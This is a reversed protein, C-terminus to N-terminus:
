GAVAQRRRAELLLAVGVLLFLAVPAPAPEGTASLACGGGGGGGRKATTPAVTSASATTGTTVRAHAPGVGGGTGIGPLEFTTAIKNLPNGFADRPADWFYVAFTVADPKSGYRDLDLPIAVTNTVEYRGDKITVNDSWGTGGGVPVLTDIATTAQDTSQGTKDLAKLEVAYAHPELSMDFDFRVKLAGPPISGHGQADTVTTEVDVKVDYPVCWVPNTLCRGEDVPQTKPDASTYAGLMFASTKTIPGEEHVDLSESLEQGPAGAVLQGREALVGSGDKKQDIPNPDNVSTRYISVREINGGFEPSSTLTYAFRVAPSGRRVLATGLGDFAGGGGIRGDKDESARTGDHWRMSTADFRDEADISFRVLPGDTLVSNGDLLAEFARDDATGGTQADGMTYTLVRGFANSDVTFTSKFGVIAALRDECQNFDGHADTGASIFVKRPFHIGPRGKLEYDMVRALDRHWFGLGRNLHDDWDDNGRAFAADAWPNLHDWDIKSSELSHRGFTGNWLQLGKVVFGDGEANVSRDDRKLPDRELAQEIFEDKWANGSFFPHAAFLASNRNEARNEKALKRMIDPLNLDPWTDGMTRAFSSGGHWPGDIHQAKYGLCHAGIPLSIFSVVNQPSSFSIEEAATPGFIEHMRQWETKGGSNKPSTPGFQPRNVPSEDEPTLSNYYCGHDTTILKGNVADVADTLGLANATEMLMPLPGGWAKRPNLLSFGDDQFWEAYTHIHSDFYRGEGSLVPRAQTALQVRMVKDSTGTTTRYFAVLFKRRNAWEIRVDLFRVDDQGQTAGLGARPLRIINYRGGQGLDQHGFLRLDAAGAATKVVKGDEDLVETGPAAVVSQASYADEYIPTSTAAQGAAARTLIRLRDIRVWTSADYDGKEPLFVLLPLYPRGPALRWPMDIVFNLDGSQQYQTQIPHEDGPIPAIVDLSVDDTSPADDQARDAFAVRAQIIGKPLRRADQPAVSWGLRAVEGAGLAPFSQAPLTLEAVSASVRGAERAAGRGEITATLEM